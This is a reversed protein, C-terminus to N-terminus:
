RPSLNFTQALSLTTFARVGNDTLLGVDRAMETRAKAVASLPAAAVNISQGALKLAASYLREDDPSIEVGEAPIDFGLKQLIQHPTLKM